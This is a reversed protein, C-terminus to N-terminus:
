GPAAVSQGSGKQDSGEVGALVLVGDALLIDLSKEAIRNAIEERQEGALDAPLSIWIHADEEEYRAFSIELRAEACLDRIFLSFATVAADIAARHDSRAPMTQM